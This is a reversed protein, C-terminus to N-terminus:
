HEWPLIRRLLERRAMDKKSSRKILGSGDVPLLTLYTESLALLLASDRLLLKECLEQSSQSFRESDELKLFPM